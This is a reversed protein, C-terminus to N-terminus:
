LEYNFCWISWYVWHICCTVCIPSLTCGRLWRLSFVGLIAVLVDFLCFGVGISFRVMSSLLHMMGGLFWFKVVTFWSLLSLYFVNLGMCSSFLKFVGDGLVKLKNFWVSMEGCLILSMGGIQGLLWTSKSVPHLLELQPHLDVILEM